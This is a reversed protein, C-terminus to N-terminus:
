LRLIINTGCPLLDKVFFERGSILTVKGGACSPCIVDRVERIKVPLVKECAECRFIVPSRELEFVAGEALTGKSVFDFYRQMWEENFDSLEGIRARIRLIRHANQAETHTVATKVIPGIISLEHM